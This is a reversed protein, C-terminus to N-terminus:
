PWHVFHPLIPLIFMGYERNASKYTNEMLEGIISTRIPSLGDTHVSIMKTEFNNVIDELENLLLGRRKRFTATLTVLAARAGEQASALLPKLERLKWPVILKYSMGTEMMIGIAEELVTEIFENTRDLYSNVDGKFTEWRDSMDAKM